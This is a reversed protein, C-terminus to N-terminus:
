RSIWYIAARWVSGTDPHMVAPRMEVEVWLSGLAAPRLTKEMSGSLGIDAIAVDLQSPPMPRSLSRRDCTTSHYAAVAQRGATVM